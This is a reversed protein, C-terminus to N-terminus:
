KKAEESKTENFTTMLRAIEKKINRKKQPTKLLEIKLEKMKNEFDKTKEKAM